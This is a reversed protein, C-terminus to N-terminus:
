RKCLAVTKRIIKKPSLVVTEPKNRRKEILDAALIVAQTGLTQRQQAITTLQIEDRNGIPLGDFGIVSIDDPVRYGNSRLLYLIDCAEMDDYAAIATVGPARKLLPLIENLDLYSTFNVGLKKSRATMGQWRKQWKNSIAIQRHGFEYLTDIAMEGAAVDDSIVSSFPGPAECTCYLVSGTQPPFRLPGPM